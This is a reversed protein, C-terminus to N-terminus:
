LIALRIAYAVVALVAVSACWIGVFWLLRSM